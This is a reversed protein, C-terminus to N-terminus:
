QDSWLSKLWDYGEPYHELDLVFEQGRAVSRLETFRGNGSSWRSLDTHYSLASECGKPHMWNPLLWVSRSHGPATLQRKRVYQRFVGAGPAKIGALGLSQAAQYITNVGSFNGHCHPHYQLWQSTSTGSDPLLDAVRVIRGVRLWGFFLHLDPAGPIFRWKRRVLEVERFWGFFLFLDGKTVGHKDLHSQAAGCQGFLPQWQKDRPLSEADLDPDLHVRTKKTISGASLNSVLKGADPDSKVDAYCLPSRPDPIPVSYMSGDAFLPSAFGGSSSDVGKRSFIIKM